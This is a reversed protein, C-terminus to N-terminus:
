QSGHVSKFYIKSIDTDPIISKEGPIWNAPCVEGYEDCYKYAQILRIVEDISRGVMMDNISMHRLLGKEDIVFTGRFAIGNEEDLVGYDRAIKCSKDSLLPINLQGVGGEQRSQEMWALHCYESDCSIGIVTTGLKEFDEMRDSVTILETPCVFTFDFPYFLLVVYSGKYDDLALQKFSGSVVSTGKFYPAPEHVRPYIRPLETKTPSSM